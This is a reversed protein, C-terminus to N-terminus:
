FIIKFIRVTNGLHGNLTNTRFYIIKYTLKIKIVGIQSEGETQVSMSFSFVLFKLQVELYIEFNPSLFNYLYSTTYNGLILQQRKIPEEQKIFSQIYITCNPLSFM